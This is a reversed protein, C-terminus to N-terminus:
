DCPPSIVQWRYGGWRPPSSWTITSQIMSVCSCLPFLILSLTRTHNGVNIGNHIHMYIAHIVIHARCSPVYCLIINTVRRVGRSVAKSFAGFGGSSSPIMKVGVAVWLLVACSGALICYLMDVSLFVNKLIKFLRSLCLSATYSHM